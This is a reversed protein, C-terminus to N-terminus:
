QAGDSATTAGNLLPNNESRAVIFCRSPSNPADGLISTHYGSRLLINLVNHMATIHHVEILLIPMLSGLLHRAGALVLSEAGEVDIKIIAPAPVRGERLLTDASVVLIKKQSFSKYAASEEPVFAQKLHSGTSRGDDIEPSFIFDEEGDMSGLACTMLTIREKLDANRELHQRFRDVNNPNPEFAVVRGTPGVLAAFALSHYGIHAGVDWVTAGKIPVLKSLTDYIFADYSGELMEKNWSATAGLNLLM